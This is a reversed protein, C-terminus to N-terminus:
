QVIAGTAAHCAQCQVVIRQAAAKATAVDEASEIDAAADRMGTVFPQFEDPLGDVTEHQSLWSAPMKTAELDGEDLAYNIEDLREAHVHMHDLLAEDRWGEIVAVTENTAAAEVDPADVTEPVAEEMEAEVEAATVEPEAVAEDKEACGILGITLSLLLVLHFKM